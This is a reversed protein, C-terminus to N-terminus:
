LACQLSICIPIMFEGFISVCKWACWITLIPKIYSLHLNYQSQFIFYTTRSFASTAFNKCLSLSKLLGDTSKLHLSIKEFLRFIVWFNKKQFVTCVVHQYATLHLYCHTVCSTYRDRNSPEKVSFLWLGGFASM